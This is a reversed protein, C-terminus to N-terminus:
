IATFVFVNVIKVGQFRKSHNRGPVTARFLLTKELIKLIQSAPPYGWVTHRHYGVSRDMSYFFFTKHTVVVRKPKFSFQQILMLQFSKGLLLLPVLLFVSYSIATFVTGIASLHNCPIHYM